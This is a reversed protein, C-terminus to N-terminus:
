MALKSSGDENILWESNASSLCFAAGLGNFCSFDEAVQIWKHGLFRGFM